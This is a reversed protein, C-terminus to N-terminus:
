QHPRVIVSTVQLQATGLEPNYAQIGVGGSFDRSYDELVSEFNWTCEITSGHVRIGLRVNDGNTIRADKKEALTETTGGVIRQLLVSGPSFACAHYTKSDLVDATVVAFGTQWNASIDFSYNDWLASGDLFTSASSNEPEARLLFNNRGIENAGWARIWGKNISFDDEFPLSKARGNEMIEVRRAGDWDYDVHIRHALFETSLARTTSAFAPSFQATTTKPFNFTYTQNNTQVFGISYINAAEAETILNGEPFNNAGEIGAENGLPFALTDITKGYDRELEQRARTLDDRVRVTFEEATELHNESRNWIRDAFFIGTTGLSDTGYPRHGDFSHSGIAWRGTWLLWRIEQPSLYYTSEPTHSSNVIIYIAAHFGLERLIPDVPYFSDKAGDDFTLLFSKEPLEKEGRMFREFDELSVARWGNKALTEMQDRFRSETVNNQDNDDTVVRHYTLIPISSAKAQSEHSADPEDGFAFGVSAVMARGATSVSAIASEAVYLAGARISYFYPTTGFLSVKGLHTSYVSVVFLVAVAALVGMKKISADLYM